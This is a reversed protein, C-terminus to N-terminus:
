GLRGAVSPDASIRRSARRPALGFLPRVPLPEPNKLQFDWRDFIMGVHFVHLIAIALVRLWDLELRRAMGADHSAVVRDALSRPALDPTM